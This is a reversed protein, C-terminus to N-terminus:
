CKCGGRLHQKLNNQDIITYGTWSQEKPFIVTGSQTMTVANFEAPQMYINSILKKAYSLNDIDLAAPSDTM